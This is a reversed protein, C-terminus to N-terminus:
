AAAAGQASDPPESADESCVPCVHRDGDQSWNSARMRDRTTPWLRRCADCRVVVADGRDMHLTMAMVM